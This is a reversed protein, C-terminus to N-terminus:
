EGDVTGLCAPRASRLPKVIGDPLKRITLTPEECRIEADGYLESADLPRRELGVEFLGDADGLVLGPRTAEAIGHADWGRERTVFRGDHQESVLARWQGLAPAPTLELEAAVAPSPTLSAPPLCALSGAVLALALSRRM